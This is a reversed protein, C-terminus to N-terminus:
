YCCSDKFGCNPCIAARSGKVAGIPHGCVPCEEAQAEEPRRGDRPEGGGPEGREAAPRENM